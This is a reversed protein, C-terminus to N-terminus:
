DEFPMGVRDIVDVCHRVEGPGFSAYTLAKGSEYQAVIDAVDKLGSAPTAVLALDRSPRM